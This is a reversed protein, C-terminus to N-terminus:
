IADFTPNAFRSLFTRATTLSVWTATAVTARAITFYGTVPTILSTSEPPVTQAARPVWAATSERAAFTVGRAPETKPSELKVTPAVEGHREVGCEQM